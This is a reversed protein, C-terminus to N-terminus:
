LSDCVPASNKSGKLMNVLMEVTSSCKPDGAAICLVAICQAVSYFAQKAASGGSASGKATSILSDLLNNFSAGDSQVLAAFFAQLAQFACYLDNV